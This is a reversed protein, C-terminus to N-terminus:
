ALNFERMALLRRALKDHGAAQALAPIVSRRLDGEQLQPIAERLAVQFRRWFVALDVTVGSGPVKREAADIERVWERTVKEDEGGCPVIRSYL